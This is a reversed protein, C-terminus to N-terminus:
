LGRQTYLDVAQFLFQAHTKKVAQALLDAQRLRPLLKVVPNYGHQVLQLFDPIGHLFIRRCLCQVQAHDFREAFRLHRPDDFIEPLIIRIDLDPDGDIGRRRQQVTQIVVLDIDHIDQIFRDIIYFPLLDQLFFLIDDKDPGDIGRQHVPILDRNLFQDPLRKKM